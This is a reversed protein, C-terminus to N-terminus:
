SQRSEQQLRSRHMHEEMAAAARAPDRSQIGRLVAEYGRRRWWSGGTAARTTARRFPSSTKAHHPQHPIPPGLKQVGGRDQPSVDLDEELGPAGLMVQNQFEEHARALDEIEKDTARSAALRAAHVELLARTEMLM